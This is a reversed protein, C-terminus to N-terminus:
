KCHELLSAIVGLAGMLGTAILVPKHIDPPPAPPETASSVPPASPVDIRPVSPPPPIEPMTERESKPSPLTEVVPPAPEHLIPWGDFLVLGQIIASGPKPSGSPGTNDWRGDSRKRWTRVFNRAHNPTQGGESTQIDFAGDPRVSWDRIVGVHDNGGEPASQWFCAAKHLQLPQKKGSVYGGLYLLSGLITRDEDDGYKGFTKGGITIIKRGDEPLLCSHWIVARCFVMCTWPAQEAGSELLERSQVNPLSALHYAIRCFRDPKSEGPIVKRFSYDIAM